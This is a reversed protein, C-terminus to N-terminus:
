LTIGAEKMVRAAEPTGRSYLRYVSTLEIEDGTNLTKLPGLMELEVYKLPDPNTYVEASSGQDPYEMGPFRRCTITLVQKKDIWILTDAETGIKSSRAPDRMMSLLSKDRKLDAPLTDSQKLYGPQSSSTGPLPIYVREPDKLQTIIWVGVHHPVKGTKKYHTTVKLEAADPLLEIERLTEIRYDPDIASRLLVKADQIEARNSVADFGSPPPWGRPAVKPWESQPSPWTKDGGFNLWDSAHPDGSKGFLAPNEFFPGDPSGALKFQMIRGIEPVVIVEAKDNRMVIANPWGHYNTAIVRVLDGSVARAVTLSLVLLIKLRTIRM